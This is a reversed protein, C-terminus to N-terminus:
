DASTEDAYSFRTVWLEFTGGADICSELEDLEEDGFMGLWRGVTELMDVNEGYERIVALEYNKDRLNNTEFYSM